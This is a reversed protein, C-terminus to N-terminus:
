SQSGLSFFPVKVSQYINHILATGCYIVSCLFLTSKKNAIM